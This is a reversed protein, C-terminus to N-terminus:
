FMYHIIKEESMEESRLLEGSIQGDRLILLRDCMGILEVLEESIILISKGVAALEQILSYIDAKVKIDIGRTPSDLVLIDSDKALWKSLVVKQKNGGSLASVFQGIHEMKLQLKTVEELAFEREKQLSIIGNNQLRDLNVICVNDMISANTILGEQDRNKSTYAIGGDIAQAINNIEINKECLTVTGSEPKLAGFIVKGLEHMGSETLGGIGLIEGQHLDFSVNKLSKELSIGNVKLVTKGDINSELDNRYYADTLQRGIMHTKLEDETVNNNIVSTIYHGDRLVTIRDCTRLVENLDHSILIVATGNKKLRNIVKFLEDRGKHSLATTTEDVVLLKPNFHTARVLEILKREEFSYQTVEAAPDISGFGYANLYEKAKKFMAKKNVIGYKTFEVENGIFINEAVSLDEITAMEQVIISIGHRNADMQNKPVFEKGELLIKGSTKQLIGTIMSSLTSKGSGNEGILGHIEGTFVQMSVQNVARTQEFDKTLKETQLLLKNCMDPNEERARSSM